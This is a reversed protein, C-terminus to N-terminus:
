PKTADQRTGDEDHASISEDNKKVFFNFKNTAEKEQHFIFNQFLFSNFLCCLHIFYRKKQFWNAQKAMKMVKILFGNISSQDNNMSDLISQIKQINEDNTAHHLKEDTSFYEDTKMSNSNKTGDNSM